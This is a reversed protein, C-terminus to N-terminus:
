KQEYRELYLDLHALTHDKIAKAEDRLRDFEPLRAKAKERKDIFGRPVNKLARQLQIDALAEKSNQKFRQSLIEM